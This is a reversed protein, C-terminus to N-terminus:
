SDVLHLKSWIMQTNENDDLDNNKIDEWDTNSIM